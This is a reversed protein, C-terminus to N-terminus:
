KKLKEIYRNYVILQSEHIDYFKDWDALDIWKYRDIEPLEKNQKTIFVSKCILKIDTIDQKLNVLYAHLLKRDSKYVQVGIDLIENINDIYKIVDITELKM